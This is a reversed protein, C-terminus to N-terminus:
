TERINCHAVKGETVVRTMTMMPMRVFDQHTVRAVTVMGMVHSMLAVSGTNHNQHDEEKLEQALQPDVRWLEKAVLEHDKICHDNSDGENNVSNHHCPHIRVPGLFLPIEVNENRDQQKHSQPADHPDNVAQKLMPVMFLLFLLVRSLFGLVEQLGNIVMSAMDFSQM